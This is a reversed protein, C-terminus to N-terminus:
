CTALSRPIPSLNTGCKTSSRTPANPTVTSTIVWIGEILQCPSVVHGCRRVLLEPATFETLRLLVKVRDIFVRHRRIDIRLPWAILVTLDSEHDLNAYRRLVAAIRAILERGSFPKTVYDDAGAGLADVKDAESDRATIVIIPVTGHSRMERCLDFGSRNLCM